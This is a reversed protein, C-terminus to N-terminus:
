SSEGESPTDSSGGGSDSESPQRTPVGSTVEVLWRYVQVIQHRPVPDTKRAVLRKFRAHADNAPELFMPIRKIAIETDAKFSFEGADGNDSPTLDEDFLAAGEEWNPYRITFLEGGVEFERDELLEDSWRKLM